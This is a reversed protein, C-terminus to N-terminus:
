PEPGLIRRRVHLHLRRRRRRGRAHRRRGPRCGTTAPAVMFSDNGAGGLFVFRGDSEASGDFILHDDAGLPMGDILSAKAPRSSITPSPCTQLRQRWPRRDHGIGPIVAPILVGQSYDGSLIL